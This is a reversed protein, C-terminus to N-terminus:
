VAQHKDILALITDLDQKAEGKFSNLPGALLTQLSAKVTDLVPLIVSQSGCNTRLAIVWAEREADSDCGSDRHDAMEQAIFLEAQDANEAWVSNGYTGADADDPNWPLEVSYLTLTPTAPSTRTTM